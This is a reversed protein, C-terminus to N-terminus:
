RRKRQQAVYSRHMYDSLYKKAARAQTAISKPFTKPFTRQRDLALEDIAEDLMQPLYGGIDPEWEGPKEYCGGLSNRGELTEGAVIARAFVDVDFPEFGDDRPDPGDGDWQFHPDLTYEVSFSINPALKALKTRLTKNGIQM